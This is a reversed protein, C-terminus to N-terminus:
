RYILNIIQWVYMVVPVILAHYWWHRCTFFWIMLLVLPVAKGTLIWMSLNADGWGKSDYTFLITEWIQSQPVYEYLYFLFPTIAIYTALISGIILNKRSLKNDERHFKSNKETSKPKLKDM